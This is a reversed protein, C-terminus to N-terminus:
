VQQTVASSYDGIFAAITGPDLCRNQHDCVEKTGRLIDYVVGATKLKNGCSDIVLM